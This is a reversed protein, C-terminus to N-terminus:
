LRRKVKLTISQDPRIYWFRRSSDDRTPYYLTSVEMNPSGVRSPLICRCMYNMYTNWSSPGIYYDDHTGEAFANGILFKM